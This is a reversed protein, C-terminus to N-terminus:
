SCSNKFADRVFLGNNGDKIERVSLIEQEGTVGGVCTKVDQRPFDESTSAVSGNRQSGTAENASVKGVRNTYRRSYKRIVYNLIGLFFIWGIIYICTGGLRGWFDTDQQYYSYLLMSGLIIRIFGFSLIFAWDVIDGAITKYYGTQRLFWRLQLLPNTVEAGGITAVLETGYYGAFLCWSLGVISLLHHAIMVPGETKFYLCWGFDFLFYALCLGVTRIQMPSNPGGASTFPWPGIVYTSYIAMLTIGVAHLVTVTRCHWEYSRSPNWLCLLFYLTTWAFFYTLIELFDFSNVAFMRSSSM